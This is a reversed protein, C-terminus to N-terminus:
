GKEIRAAFLEIGLEFLTEDPGIIVVAPNDRLRDATSLFYQRFRRKSSTRALEILAHNSIAQILL